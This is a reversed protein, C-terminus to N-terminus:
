GLGVDMGAGCEDPPGRGGGAGTEEQFEGGGAFPKRAPAPENLPAPTPSPPPKPPPDGLKELWSLERKPCPPIPIAPVDGLCPLKLFSIPNM